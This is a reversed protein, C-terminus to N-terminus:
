TEIESDFKILYLPDPVFFFELCKKVVFDSMFFNVYICLFYNFIAFGKLTYVFQLRLRLQAEAHLM